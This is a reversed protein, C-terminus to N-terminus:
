PEEDGSIPVDEMKVDDGYNTNLFEVEGLRSPLDNMAIEDLIKGEPADRPDKIRPNPPYSLTSALCHVKDQPHKLPM